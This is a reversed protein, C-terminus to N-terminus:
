RTESDGVDLNESAVTRALVVMKERLERAAVWAVIKVAIGVRVSIDQKLDKGDPRAFRLGKKGPFQTSRVSVSGERTSDLVAVWGASSGM